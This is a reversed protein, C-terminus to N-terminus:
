LIISTVFIYPINITYYYFDKIKRFCLVIFFPSISANNAYCFIFSNIPAVQGHIGKMTSNKIIYKIIALDVRYYYPAIFVKKIQNHSIM